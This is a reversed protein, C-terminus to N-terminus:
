QIAGLQQMLTTYWPDFPYDTALFNAPPNTLLDISDFNWGRTLHGETRSATQFATNTAISAHFPANTFLFDSNGAQYEDFAVQQLRVPRPQKHRNTTYVVTQPDFPADWSSSVTVSRGGQSATTKDYLPLATTGHTAANWAVVGTAPNLTGNWVWNQVQNQSRHVESLTNNGSFVLTPVVGSDFSAPATTWAIEGTPSDLVGTLYNLKFTAPTSYVVVVNGSDDLAVSPTMGSTAFIGTRQWSVMGNNQYKGTWYHLQGDTATHVEVIQGASNLAVAPDDGLDRLYAARATPDGSLLTLVKGRLSDVATAGLANGGPADEAIYLKDGFARKIADNLAGFNGNAYSTEQSITDKLCIMVIIPAATPHADAWNAIVATWDSLLNTAPNGVSHDVEDGPGGSEGIQYDGAAAYGASHIDLELYRVGGDLQQEISGKEGTGALNGSYSNHTTYLYSQALTAGSQGNASAAGATAQGATTEALAPASAALAGSGALAGAAMGAATMFARRSTGGVPDEEEGAASGSPVGTNEAM